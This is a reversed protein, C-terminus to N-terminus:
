NRGSELRPDEALAIDRKTEWVGFAQQLELIFTRPEIARVRADHAVQEFVGAIKEIMRIYPAQQVPEDLNTQQRGIV